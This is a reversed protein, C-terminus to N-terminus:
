MGSFHIHDYYTAIDKDYIDGNLVHLMVTEASFSCVIMCRGGRRLPFTDSVTVDDM